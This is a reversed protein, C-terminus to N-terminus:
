RNTNVVMYQYNNIFEDYDEKFQFWWSSWYLEGENCHPLSDSTHDRYYFLGSSKDDFYKAIDASELSEKYKHELYAWAPNNEEDVQWGLYCDLSIMSWLWMPIKRRWGLMDSNVDIRREKIKCQHEHLRKRVEKEVEYETYLKEIM